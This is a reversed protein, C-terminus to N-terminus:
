FFGIYIKKDVALNLSGNVETPRPSPFKKISYREQVHSM